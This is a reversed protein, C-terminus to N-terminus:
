KPVIMGSGSRFVFTTPTVPDCIPQPRGADDYPRHNECGDDGDPDFVEDQSGWFVLRDGTWVVEGHLQGPRGEAPLEIGVWRATEPDIVSWVARDDRDTPVAMLQDAQLGRDHAVQGTRAPEGTVSSWSDDTWSYVWADRHARVVLHEDRDVLRAHKSTGPAAPLRTWGKGLEYFAGDALPENTAGLGGLVM